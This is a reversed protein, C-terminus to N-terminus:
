HEEARRARWGKGVRREESRTRAPRRPYGVTTWPWGSVKDPGAPAQVAAGAGAAVAIPGRRRLLALAMAAGAGRLGPAPPRRSAEPVSHAPRHAVRTAAGVRM